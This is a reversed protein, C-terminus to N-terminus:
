FNIKKLKKKIKPIIFRDKKKVLELNNKHHWSLITLLKRLINIIM